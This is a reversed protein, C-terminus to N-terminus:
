DNDIITATGKKRGLTLGTSPSSLDLYFLEDPESVSGDATAVSVTKTTESTTFSVTGSTGTYDSGATATGNVTAYSASVTATATGVKVITFVASQGETVTVDQVFLLVGTGGKVAVRNDVKDYNYTNSINNNVTGSHVASIVRGQADYVYTITEGALSPGSTALLGLLTCVWLHRYRRM